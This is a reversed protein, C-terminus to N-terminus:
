GRAMVTTGDDFGHPKSGYPHSPSLEKNLGHIGLPLSFFLAARSLSLCPVAKGLWFGGGGTATLKGLWFGGNITATTLPLRLEFSKPNKAM